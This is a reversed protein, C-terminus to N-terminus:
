RGVAEVWGDQLVQHQAARQKLNPQPADELAGEPLNDVAEEDATGEDIMEQLRVPQVFGKLLLNQGEDSFLFELFLRAVAPHPADENISAAYYSSVTGEEPSIIQLDVGSGALSDVMPALLYDWNILIPTENTEITGESGEVPVLNGKEALEGFFDIGPQIDDLSGGNALAAAYVVMFSSEGTTPDGPIAVKDQYEEDLLDEFSEPCKEVQTADCGIAINGGLHNHWTDNESRMDADINEAGQPTYTALLGDEEAQAAFSMGTDLYDLSNDQGQRSQVANILDQSSGASVDNNIDIGYKESFAQLVEGYNAWDEYLGMSNFEGEAQAAEILADMGGGEELTTAQRWHASEESEAGGGCATLSLAASAAVAVSAIARTKTM